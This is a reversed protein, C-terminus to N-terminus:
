SQVANIIDNSMPEVAPEFYHTLVGNENILYKCFNWSPAENLWGNKTKDGLWDFIKNQQASKIVASKTALPFTVGYNIKCFQAIEEDNGKEQEKFNNSPFGIIILKGAFQDYLNQLRAYQNTYGCDSATNVILIKKGKYSSLTNTSGNNLQFPINYVSLNPQVNNKNIYVKHHQGKIKSLSIVFPYITKLIKQRLTMQKQKVAATHL